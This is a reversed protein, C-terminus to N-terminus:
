IKELYYMFGLNPLRMRYKSKFQLTRDNVKWRELDFGLLLLQKPRITDVDLAMMNDLIAEDRQEGKINRVAEFVPKFRKEILEEADTRSLYIRDDKVPPAKITKEPVYPTDVKKVLPKAAAPGISDIRLTPTTFLAKVFTDELQGLVKSQLLDKGFMADFYKQYDSGYNATMFSPQNLARVVLAIKDISFIVGQKPNSFLYHSLAGEYIECKLNESKIANKFNSIAVSNVYISDSHEGASKVEYVGWNINRNETELMHVDFAPIAVNSKPTTYFLPFFGTIQGPKKVIDSVSKSKINLVITRAIDLMMLNSDSAITKSFNHYLIDGDTFFTEPGYEGKLINFQFLKDISSVAILEFPHTNEPFKFAHLVIVCYMLKTPCFKDDLFDARQLNQLNAKTIQYCYGNINSNGPYQMLAALDSKFHSRLTQDDRDVLLDKAINAIHMIAIIDGVTILNLMNFWAFGMEYVTCGFQREFENSKAKFLTFDEDKAVVTDDFLGSFQTPVVYQYDDSSSIEDPSDLMAISIRKDLGAILSLNLPTKGSRVSELIARVGKEHKLKQTPKPEDAKVMGLDEYLKEFIDVIKDDQTEMAQELAMTKKLVPKAMDADSKLGAATLEIVPANKMSIINSLIKGGRAIVMDNLIGVRQGQELLYLTMLPERVNAADHLAKYNQHSLLRKVQEPNMETLLEDLQATENTAALREFDEIYQDKNKAIPAVPVEAPEPVVPAPEVDPPLHFLDANETQIKKFFNQNTNTLKRGISANPNEEYAEYYQDLKAFDEAYAANREILMTRTVNHDALLEDIKRVM